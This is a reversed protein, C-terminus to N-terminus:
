GQTVCCVSEECTGAAGRPVNSPLRIVYELLKEMVNRRVVNVDGCCMVQM